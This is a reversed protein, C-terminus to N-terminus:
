TKGDEVEELVIFKVHSGYDIIMHGTENMWSRLYYPHVGQSELYDVILKYVPKINSFSYISTGIQNKLKKGCLGEHYINVVKIGGQSCLM